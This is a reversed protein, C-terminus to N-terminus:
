KFIEGKGVSGSQNVKDADELKDETDKEVHVEHASESM